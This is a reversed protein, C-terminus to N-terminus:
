LVAPASAAPANRGQLITIAQEDRQGLVSRLHLDRQPFPIEIEYKNLKTEVAWLYAALVAGPRKVADRTLWLVLEFNLASDGFGVLWVQPERMQHGKLTFAIEDAAELAAKKVLEKETGYAVGFPIHVRRFAERLTWNTVRGNVFESNPVLIDINDNTTILTSRMNIERVEGTLGSELEVFDGIKLSREFLIILGAVFNGVLTQLGFGIGVGLASAFLAFKTFDIGISSLGIVVGLALIVYHSIRGLAYAAGQNFSEHKKAFRRIMRRVLSSVLWAIFVVAVIRAIGLPTVPTENIEFMNARALDWALEWTITVADQAIRVGKDVHTERSSLLTEMLQALAEGTTKAEELLSLQTASKTILEARSRLLASLSRDTTETLQSSVLSNAQDTARRSAAIQRSTVDIIKEFERLKERVAKHEDPTAMNVKELLLIALEANGAQREHLRLQIELLAVKQKALQNRVKDVGQANTSGIASIQAKGLEARIENAKQKEENLAKRWGAIDKESSVLRTAALSLEERTANMLKDIQAIQFTLQKLENAALELQIRRLMIQLGQETREPAVPPLEQYSVKLRSQEKEGSKAAAELVDREQTLSSLEIQNKRLSKIIDLVQEITYTDSPVRLPLAAPPPASKIMQYRNLSDIVSEVLKATADTDPGTLKAGLAALFETSSAVQKSLEVPKIDTGSFYNWWDSQLDTPDPPPAIVEPAAITAGSFVVFACIALVRGFRKM